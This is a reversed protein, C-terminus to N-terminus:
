ARYGRKSRDDAHPGVYRGAHPKRDRRGRHGQAVAHRIHGAEMLKHEIFTHFSRVRIQVSDGKFTAFFASLESIM